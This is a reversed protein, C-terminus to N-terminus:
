FNLIFVVSLLISVILNILGISILTTDLSLRVRVTLEYKVSSSGKCNYTIAKLKLNTGSM